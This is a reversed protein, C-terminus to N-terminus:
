RGVHRPCSHYSTSRVGAMLLISYKKAVVTVHGEFTVTPTLEPDMPFARHRRSEPLSSDVFISRRRIHGYEDRVDRDASQKRGCAGCRAVTLLYTAPSGSSTRSAPTREVDNRLHHDYPRAHASRRQRARRDAAPVRVAQRRSSDATRCLDTRVGRADRRCLDARSALFQSFWACTRYCFQHCLAYRRQGPGGYVTEVHLEEVTGACQHAAARRNISLRGYRCAIRRRGARQDVFPDCSEPGARLLASLGVLGGLDRGGRLLARRNLKASAM